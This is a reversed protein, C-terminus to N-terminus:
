TKKAVGRYRALQAATEQASAWGLLHFQIAEMQRRNPRRNTYLVLLQAAILALYVQLAVGRPSEALWHRCGLICKLWRFFMEVQWRHRYLLAILEPPSTHVPLTTALTILENEGHLQVIRVRAGDGTKGLRVTGAWQVGAALDAAGLAEAHEEVWLSDVRLRVVFDVGRQQMAALTRYDYAYYRDAIYCAGPRAWRRWQARECTKAPTLQAREVQGRALDFEVHLRVANDPGGRSGSRPRWFAWAMRPLVRWVTSDLVLERGTLGALREGAPQAQAALTGFLEELLAPEVLAQAESFSGLSVAVGSVERQVRPLKTAACLGRMTRVVPNFLGFLFLSLYGGLQLTRNREQWSGCAAGGRAALVAALAENFRALLKWQQLDRERIPGNDKAVGGNYGYREM